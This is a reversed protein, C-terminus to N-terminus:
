HAVPSHPHDPASAAPGSPPHVDNAPPPLAPAAPLEFWFLSGMGPESRVGYRGDHGEVLRRVTALGLGLGPAQTGTGRVYPDFARGVLEPPLGPGTDRVEFRVREAATVIGVRVHRRQRDGMHKIANNVLNSVLSALVGPACRVALPGRPIEVELEVGQALAPGRMEEVVGAFVEDVRCSAGPAPRAGAQAFALLDDILRHARRLSASARGM